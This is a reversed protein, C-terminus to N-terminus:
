GQRENRWGLREGDWCRREGDWGRRGPLLSAAECSCGRRRRHKEKGPVSQQPKVRRPLRAPPAPAAQSKAHRPTM